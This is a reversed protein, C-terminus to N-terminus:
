TLTDLLVDHDACDVDQDEQDEQGDDHPTGADVLVPM